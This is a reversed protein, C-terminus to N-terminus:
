AQTSGVSLHGSHHNTGECVDPQTDTALESSGYTETPEIQGLRIAPLLDISTETSIRVTFGVLYRSTTDTLPGAGCSNGNGMTPSDLVGRRSRARAFWRSDDILGRSCTATSARRPPPHISPMWQPTPRYQPEAGITQNLRRKGDKDVLNCITGRPSGASPCHSRYGSAMNSGKQNSPQHPLETRAQWGRRVCDRGRRGIPPSVPCEPSSLKGINDRNPVPLRDKPTRATHRPEAECRLRADITLRGTM